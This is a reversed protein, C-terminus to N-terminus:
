GIVVGFTLIQYIRILASGSAVVTPGYASALRPSTIVTDSDTCAIYCVQKYM